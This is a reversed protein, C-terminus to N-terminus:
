LRFGRKLCGLPCWVASGRMQSCSHPSTHHAPTPTFGPFCAQAIMVACNCPVCTDMNKVKTFHRNTSFRPHLNYLPACPNLLLGSVRPNDIWDEPTPVQSHYLYASIAMDLPNRVSHVVAVGEEGDVFTTCNGVELIPKGDRCKWLTSVRM